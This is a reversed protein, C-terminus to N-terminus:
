KNIELFADIVKSITTKERESLFKWERLFETQPKTLSFDNYGDFFKNLPIELKDCIKKIAPLSPIANGNKWEYAHASTKTKKLMEGFTLNKEECLDKIRKILRKDETM